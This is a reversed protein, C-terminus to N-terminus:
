VPNANPNNNNLFKSSELIERATPRNDPYPSLMSALLDQLDKDELHEFYAQQNKLNNIQINFFKSQTENKM